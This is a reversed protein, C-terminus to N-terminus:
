GDRFELETFGIGISTVVHPELTFVRKNMDSHIAACYFRGDVSITFALATGTLMDDSLNELYLNLSSPRWPMVPPCPPTRLLSTEPSTLQVSWRSRWDDPVGLVPDCLLSVVTLIALSWSTRQAGNTM